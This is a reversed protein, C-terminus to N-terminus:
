FVAVFCCFKQSLLGKHALNTIYDFSPDTITGRPQTKVFGSFSYFTRISVCPTSRDSIPKLTADNDERSGSLKARYLYIHCFVFFIYLIFMLSHQCLVRFLM